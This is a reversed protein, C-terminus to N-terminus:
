RYLSKVVSWSTDHVPSGGPEVIIVAGEDFVTLPYNYIDRLDASLFDMDTTGQYHAFLTIHVLVGPGNVWGGLVAGDIILTDDDELIWQFATSNGGSSPLPGEAAEVYRVVSSDLTIILNYGTLDTLSENVAVDITFTTGEVVQTIQPTLYITPPDTVVVQGDHATVPISSNEIDRLEFTLFELASVGPVLASFHLRALVGPGDVSGVLAAGNIIIANQPAPGPTWFFFSEGSSQPLAGEVVSVVELVDEDYDIILDYGTLGLLEDNVSVDVWLDGGTWVETLAPDIYLASDACATSATLVGLLALLCVAKWRMGMM